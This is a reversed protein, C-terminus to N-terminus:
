FLSPSIMLGPALALLSRRTFLGSSVLTLCYPKGKKEMKRYFGGYNKQFAVLALDRHGWFLAFLAM